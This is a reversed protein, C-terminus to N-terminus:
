KQRFLWKDFQVYNEEFVRWNVHDDSIADISELYKWVYAPLEDKQLIGNKDKDNRNFFDVAFDRPTRLDNHTLIVASKSGAMPTFSFGIRPSPAAASAVATSSIHPVLTGSPLPGTSIVPQPDFSLVISKSGAIVASPAQIRGLRGIQSQLQQDGNVDLHGTEIIPPSEFLTVGPSLPIVVPAMSKSSSSELSGISNPPTKFDITSSFETSLDQDLLPRIEALPLRSSQDDWQHLIGSRWAVYGGALIVSSSLAALKALLSPQNMLNAM